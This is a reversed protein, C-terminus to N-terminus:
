GLIDDLHLVEDKLYIIRNGMIEEVKEKARHLDNEANCEIELRNESLVIEALIQDGEMLRFVMAGAEELSVVFQDEKRIFDATELMKEVVYIGQYLMYDSADEWEESETQDIIAMFRYLVLSQHTMFHEMDVPEFDRCYDNYKEMIGKVLMTEYAEPLMEVDESLMWQGQDDPYLRGVALGQFGEGVVYYDKKTFVDKVLQKGAVEMSKFAGYVSDELLKLLPADEAQLSNRKQYIDLISEGSKTRFDHLIWDTIGRVSDQDDLGYTFTKKAEELLNKQQEKMLWYLVKEAMEAVHQKEM